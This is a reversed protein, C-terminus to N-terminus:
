FENSNDMFIFDIVGNILKGDPVYQKLLKHDTDFGKSDIADINIEKNKFYFALEGAWRESIKMTKGPVVNEFTQLAIELRLDPNGKLIGAINDLFPYSSLLIGSNDFKVDTNWSGMLAESIKIKQRGALDDM